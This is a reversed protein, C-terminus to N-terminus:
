PFFGLYWALLPKGTFVTLIGAAALFSGFPLRGPEAEMKPTKDARYQLMVIGALAGSVIAAFLALGGLRWGLWAGLMAGLKVDGLGMGDRGRILRYLVSVLLLLGGLASASLLGDAAAHLWDTDRTFAVRFLIGLIIGPLTFADPLLYERADMWMLGFLLWCFITMGIGEVTVGFHLLNMLFLMATGGEVLPYLVALPQRCCRSRGRLLIWSLLPVNDVPRVPTGCWRCHSPPSIVSEGKPLRLICVNLFSGFALGLLVAFGVELLLM